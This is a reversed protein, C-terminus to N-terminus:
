GVSCSKSPSEGPGCRTPLAACFAYARGSRPVAAGLADKELHLKAIFRREGAPAPLGFYLPPVTTALGAIQDSTAWILRVGIAAYIQDTIEEAGRLLEAAIGAQNDVVLVITPPLEETASLRTGALAICAVLGVAMNRTRNAM